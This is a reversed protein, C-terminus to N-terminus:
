TDLASAAPADVFWRTADGGRVGAGPTTMVDEGARARRVADAKDEGSVVFWVERGTRLAPLTM